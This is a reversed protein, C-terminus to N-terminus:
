PAPLEAYGSTDWVVNALARYGADSPHGDGGNACIFTLACITATESTDDGQPNFVPFPNAFRARVTAAATQQAQNLETYLPDAFAFSGVDPDYAGVIIIEASPAFTRLLRLISTLRTRYAAIAAPAGSQICALDGPPCSQLFDHIDNAYLSVTIPSVRGFHSALFTLAADLQSGAYDNHLAHGSTKWICSVRFSTTSEGPCGYNVTDIKPRLQRLRAAFLDVYGTNFAEPPLGALAKDPQFGYALSDGLALYYRKPPTLGSPLPVPAATTEGIDHGGPRGADASAVGAQAILGGIAIVPALLAGAIRATRTARM